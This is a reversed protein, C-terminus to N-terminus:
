MREDLIQEVFEIVYKRKLLDHYKQNKYSRLCSYCSSDGVEGGCVCGKMMKLTHTLINYLAIENDLRKAHGAGGPTNDFVVISYNPRGDVPEYQLCGSIDNEEINLYSCAGRLFGYLISLGHEWDEIVYNDFRIRVVDTLFRYGLSFLRLHENSCPYGSSIKHKKKKIGTFQNEDVESYGCNECVYFPSKNLVAMEDNQSSRVSVIANGISYTNEQVSNNFGVYSIEGRYTREPKKLGPKRIMNGDAIFGQAPILFVKPSSTFKKHCQCCETIGDKGPEDEAFPKINLTRCEDCQIYSYMKWGIKPIKKIYRSTILNNNAVIQSGPAYESIAMSLDRQLQLGYGRGKKADTVTMEVTDVPFGYKPLVNKRSLFSLIDEREYAAIRQIIGDVYTGKEIRQKKVAELLDIEYRYMQIAETLVGKEGILSAVWGFHAVDFKETLVAPLFTTLYDRLSSPESYLYNKLCEFGDEGMENKRLFQGITKFLEPHIKWFFSMASAYLHRIAIKDNEVVYNPPAIKGKIM